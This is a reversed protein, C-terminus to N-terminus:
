PKPPKPKERVVFRPRATAEQPNIIHIHGAAVEAIEYAHPESAKDCCMAHRVGFSASSCAPQAMTVTATVLHGAANVQIRAVNATTSAEHDIVSALSM